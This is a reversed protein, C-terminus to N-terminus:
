VIPKTSRNSRYDTLCVAVNEGTLHLLTAHGKHWKVEKLCKVLFFLTLQNQCRKHTLKFVNLRQRIHDVSSSLREFFTLHDDRGEKYMLNFRRHVDFHHFKRECGLRTRISFLHYQTDHLCWGSFLGLPSHHLLLNARFVCMFVGISCHKSAIIRRWFVACKRVNFEIKRRCFLFLCFTKWERNQRLGPEIWIYSIWGNELSARHSFHIIHSTCIRKAIEYIWNVSAVQSCVNFTSLHSFLDIKNKLGPLTQTKTAIQLKEFDNFKSAFFIIFQFNGANRPFM